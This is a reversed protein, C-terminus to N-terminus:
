ECHPLLTLLYLLDVPVSPKDKLLSLISMADVTNLMETEYLFVIQMLLVEIDKEVIQM